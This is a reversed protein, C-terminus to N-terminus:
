TSVFTFTGQPMTTGEGTVTGNPVICYTLQSDTPGYGCDVYGSWCTLVPIFSMFGTTGPLMSNGTSVTQTTGNQISTATSVQFANAINLEFGATVDAKVIFDVGTEIQITASTGITLTTSRSTTLTTSTSVGNTFAFVCPAVNCTNDTTVRQQPGSQSWPGNLGSVSCSPASPTATSTSATAKSMSASAASILSNKNAGGQLAEPDPVPARATIQPAASAGESYAKEGMEEKVALSSSSSSSEDELGRKALNADGLSVRTCDDRDCCYTTM